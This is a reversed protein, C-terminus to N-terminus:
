PVERPLTILIEAGGGQGGVGRGQLSLPTDKGGEGRPPSPDPTLPAVAIRGGHAEVIRRAIAMGLGTGKTRTTYFPEFIRQRQEATLGPQVDVELKPLARLAAIAEDELKDAVLLKM